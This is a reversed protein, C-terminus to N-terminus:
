CVPRLRNKYYQYYVNKGKKRTQVPSKGLILGRDTVLSRAFRSEAQPSPDPVMLSEAGVGGCM